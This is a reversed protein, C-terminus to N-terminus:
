SGILIELTRHTTLEKTNNAAQGSTRALRRGHSTLKGLCQLRADTKIWRGGLKRVNSQYYKLFCLWQSRQNIMTDGKGLIQLASDISKIPEAGALL